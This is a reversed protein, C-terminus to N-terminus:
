IVYIEQNYEGIGVFKARGKIIREFPWCSYCGKEGNPCEFQRRDRAKKIKKSAELVKEKAIDINPLSVQMPINDKGVYWYSAGSVKRKQLENLLLAYIPLQLSDKKEPNKGTKFDIVKVSDDADIYELWDIKGCLVIKNQKDLVFNLLDDNDEDKLKVTKSLLPGPNQKVREIMAMGRAKSEGEEATTKFGGVIGSVKKWETEFTKELPIIFREDAKYKALGELVEHVAKGLSLAPAAIAIKKGRENRYINRLYYARPCKLFDGISTHSVWIANSEERKM